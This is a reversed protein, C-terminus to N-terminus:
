SLCPHSLPLMAYLRRPDNPSPRSRSLFQNAGVLLGVLTPWAPRVTSAETM